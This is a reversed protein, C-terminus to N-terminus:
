RLRSLVYALGRAVLTLDIVVDDDRQDRLLQALHATPAADTARKAAPAM